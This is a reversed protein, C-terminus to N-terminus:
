RLCRLRELLETDCNLNVQGHGVPLIPVLSNGKELVLIQPRLQFNASIKLEM